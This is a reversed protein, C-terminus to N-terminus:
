YDVLPKEANKIPKLFVPYSITIKLSYMKFSKSM